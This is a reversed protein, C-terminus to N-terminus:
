DGPLKAMSVVKQGKCLDSRIHKQLLRGLLSAELSACTATVLAWSGRLVRHLWAEAQCIALHLTLRPM